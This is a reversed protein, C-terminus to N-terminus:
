QELDAVDIDVVEIAHSVSTDDNLSEACEVCRPLWSTCEDMAFETSIVARALVTAPKLCHVCTPNKKPIM